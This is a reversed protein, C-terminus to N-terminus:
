LLFQTILSQQDETRPYARLVSCHSNLVVRQETGGASVSMITPIETHSFDKALVQLLAKYNAEYTQTSPSTFTIDLYSHKNTEWQYKFSSKLESLVDKAIGVQFASSKSIKLKYYSVRSFSDLVSELAKLSSMPDTLSLIMDDALLSIKHAQGCVMIGEILPHKGILAALPEMLLSFILPSLPCGQCM